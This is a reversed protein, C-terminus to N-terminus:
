GGIRKLEEELHDKELLGGHYIFLRSIEVQAMKRVSALAQDMDHTFRPNPGSLIGDRYNLADGTIMTKSAPHYLSVHGLTHGPTWLIQVGGAIELIDKDEIISDVKTVLSPFTGKLHDFWAQQDPQLKMRGSEIDLVKLPSLSGEIYPIEERHAFVEINPYLAKIEKLAGMHDIDHHTILIATVKSLSCDFKNLQAELLDVQGLLGTDILLVNQADYIVSPHLVGGTREINLIRIGETKKM